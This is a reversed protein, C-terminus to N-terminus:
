DVRVNDATVGMWDDSRFPHAPLYTENYLNGQPNEAWNYRVAVPKEIGSATLEVTNESVIKAEAWVFKKDEGAVAFGQLPEGYWTILKPGYTNFKVTVKGDEFTASEYTPGKRVVGSIKFADNLALRALRKGVTQKDKPHIDKAAGADTICVSDVNPLAKNTLQQAERLEGWASEKPQPSVAQFNALEVQYFYFDGQGWADRWSQIAAPMLERYQYARGANSEGQYWIAGRIAYPALPHIMANYLTSPHHESWRTNGPHGPRAPLDTGDARAKKLAAQWANWKEEYAKTAEQNEPKAIINNWSDQIPQLNPKVAMMEPSTWAEARTGGWSSNILGIPVGTSIHLQRGFFYGVGSFHGVTEPSCVKWLSNVDDQPTDATTLPVSFLRINPYNAALRELDPDDSQNVSWGMNSQGSCIWVEGVLVDDFTLTNEGTITLTGPEGLALPALSVKWKGQDDAKASVSQDRFTVTVQEGPEAWGWVPAAIDRQLVMGNSFLAPTRVKAFASVPTMTVLAAAVLMWSVFSRKM